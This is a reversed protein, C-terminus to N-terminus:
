DVAFGASCSDSNHVVWTRPSSQGKGGLIMLTSRTSPQQESFARVIIPWTVAHHFEGLCLLSQGGKDISAREIPLM